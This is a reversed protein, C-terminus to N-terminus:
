IFDFGFEDLFMELDQKEYGYLGVGTGHYGENDYYFACTNDGGRM